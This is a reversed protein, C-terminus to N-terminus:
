LEAFGDVYEDEDAAEELEVEAVVDCEYGVSFAACVRNQSCFVRYLDLLPPKKSPMAGDKKRKLPKLISQLDKITWKANPSRDPQAPKALLVTDAVFFFCAFNHKFTFKLYKKM